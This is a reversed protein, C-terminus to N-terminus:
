RCGDVHRGGGVLVLDSVEGERGKATALDLEGLVLHRTEHLCALLVGVVLWQLTGANGAAQM